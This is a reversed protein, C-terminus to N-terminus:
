EDWCVVAKRLAPDSIVPEFRQPVEPLSLRHTLWSAPDISGEALRDLVERMEATTANRSALLSLEKRHLEPDHFSLPGDVIGVFVVRGGHAALAPALEMSAANGTADIVIEPLEGGFSARVAAAAADRASPDSPTSSIAEPPPSLSDVGFVEAAFRHRAEDRDMVALGAVRDRLFAVVGMGIPGAGIVLAHEGAQPAARGSAHCGIALMEALAAAEPALSGIPHLKHAPHVFEERMAGDCHVGIVQLSECCNSRGRRSAPSSPDNLYPEVAVLQGPALLSGDACPTGDCEVVEAAIEHGLIRPYEFFPQRGRYAHIDTGCVGLRRLRLRAEGPGHIPREAQRTEFRGPRLLPIEIM